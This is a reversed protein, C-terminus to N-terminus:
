GALVRETTIIFPLALPASLFNAEDNRTATYAESVGSARMADLDDFWTIASGDWAPTAGGAYESDITHSQVYHRMVEIHCALPGHHDHWYRRFAEISLDPRRKVFEFNKLGGDRIEGRKILHEDVLFVASSTPDAGVRERLAEFWPSTVAHRAAREDDFWLEDVADYVPDGNRYGTETTVSRTHRRLGSITPRAREDSDRALRRRFDAVASGTHRRYAFMAKVVHPDTEFTRATASM